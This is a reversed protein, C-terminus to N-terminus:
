TFPTFFSRTAATPHLHQIHLYKRSIATLFVPDKLPGQPTGHTDRSLGLSSSVQICSVHLARAAAARPPPPPSATHRGDDPGTTRPDDAPPRNALSAHM